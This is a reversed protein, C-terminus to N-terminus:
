LNYLSVCMKVKQKKAWKNKDGGVKTQLDQDLKCRFSNALKGAYARQGHLTLSLVVHLSDSVASAM